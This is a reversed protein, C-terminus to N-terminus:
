HLAYSCDLSRSESAAVGVRFFPEMVVLMGRLSKFVGELFRIFGQVSAQWAHKSLDVVGLCAHEVHCLSIM